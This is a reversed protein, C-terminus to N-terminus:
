EELSVVKRAIDSESWWLTETVIMVNAACMDRHMCVMKAKTTLIHGVSSVFGIQMATLLVRQSRLGTTWLDSSTSVGRVVMM